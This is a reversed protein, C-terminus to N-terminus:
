IRLFARLLATSFLSGTGELCAHFRFGESFNLFTTSLPSDPALTEGEWNNCPPAAQYSTLSM